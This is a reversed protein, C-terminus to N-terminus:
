IVGGFDEVERCGETLCPSNAGAVGMASSERSEREELPEQIRLNDMRGSDCCSLKLDLTPGSEGEM